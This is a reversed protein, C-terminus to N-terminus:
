VLLSITGSQWHYKLVSASKRFERRALKFVFLNDRAGESWSLTPDCFYLSGSTFARRSLVVIWLWLRGSPPAPADVHAIILVAAIVGAPAMLSDLGFLDRGAPPPFAMMGMCLEATHCIGRM